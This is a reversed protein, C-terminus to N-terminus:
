KNPTLRALHSIQYQPKGGRDRNAYDVKGEILVVDGNHLTKLAPHPLLRVGGGLKDKENPTVNYIIHWSKDAEDFDVVGRLSSYSVPDYDYPNPSSAATRTEPAAVPAAELPEQFEDPGDSAPSSASATEIGASQVRKPEDEEVGSVQSIQPRSSRENFAGSGPLDAPDGHPAPVPGGESNSAGGQSNGDWGPADGGSGGPTTPMRFQQQNPAPAPAPSGLTGGPAYTAGPPPAPFSQQPMVAGPPAYTGPYGYGYPSYTHCGSLLILTLGCLARPRWHNSHM